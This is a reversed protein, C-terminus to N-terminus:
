PTKEVELKEIQVRYQRLLVDVDHCSFAHGNQYNVVKICEGTVAKVVVPLLKYDHHLVFLIVIAGSILGTLTTMIFLQLTNLVTYRM